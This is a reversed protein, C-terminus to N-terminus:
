EDKTWDEVQNKTDRIKYSSNANFIPLNERADTELAKLYIYADTGFGDCSAIKIDGGFYRTYLRSLPLGYGLGHMPTNTSTTGGMDGGGLKARSASTYLYLFVNEAVNRSIGGGRDSVKITIDHSSKVIHVDIEPVTEANENFEMTARMSNKFVEFFMHYLHTPIYVFNIKDTGEAVNSCTINMKPSDMYIQDCLFAANEYAEQAVKVPDCQPDITGQEQHSCSPDGAGSQSCFLSKHHAILMQVSIRSMYLRDLFYQIAQNLKDKTTVQLNGDDRMSHLADAMRPVTDQHRLRINTIVENFTTHVEPTNPSNEFSLMEKFSQGYQNIIEQCPKQAHLEDPLLELEMMINALRVPIERRLFLFSDEVTGGGSSHDLFHSLTVSTPTFKSYFDMKMMEEANLTQALQRTRPPEVEQVGSMKSTKSAVQFETSFARKLVETSISSSQLINSKGRPGKPVKTSLSDLSGFM